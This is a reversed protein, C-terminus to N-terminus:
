KGNYFEDRKSDGTVNLGMKNLAAVILNHRSQSISKTKNWHWEIYIKKIYKQLIDTQLLKELIDYEKGEIDIKLIVQDEDKLFLKFFYLVDVCLVEIEKKNKIFKDELLSSGLKNNSGIDEFFKIYQIDEKLSDIATNLLIVKQKYNAPIKRKSENILYLIPELGIYLDMKPYEYIAKVITQGNHSGFDIFINKM